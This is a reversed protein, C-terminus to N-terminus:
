QHLLAYERMGRRLDLMIYLHGYGKLDSWPVNAARTCQKVSLLPSLGDAGFCRVHQKKCTLVCTAFSSSLCARAAQLGSTCFCAAMARCARLMLCADTPVSSALTVALLLGRIALGGGTM